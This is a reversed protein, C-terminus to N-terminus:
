LWQKHYLNIQSRCVIKWLWTSSWIQLINLISFFSQFYPPFENQNSGAIPQINYLRWYLSSTFNLHVKIEVWGETVPLAEYKLETDKYHGSNHINQIRRPGFHISGNFMLLLQPFNVFLFTSTCTKIRHISVIQRDTM